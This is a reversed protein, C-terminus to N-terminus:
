CWRAEERIVQPVMSGHRSHLIRVSTSTWKAPFDLRENAAVILKSSNPRTMGERVAQYAPSIATLTVKNALSMLELEHESKVMRCGRDSPEAQPDETPPLGKRNRRQVCLAVREEVCTGTSFASTTSDRHWCNTPTKIQRGLDACRCINGGPLPSNNAPEDEEFAPCVCLARGQAPLLLRLCDNAEGWRVGAFYDLSTGEMLLLADFHNAQMLQRAKEQARHIGRTIPKAQDKMSRLSCHFVASPLLKRDTQTFLQSYPSARAPTITGARLFHRRSFCPVEMQDAASPLRPLSAM